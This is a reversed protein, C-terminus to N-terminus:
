RRDQALTTVLSLDPPKLQQRCWQRQEESLRYYLWTLYASQAQRVTIEALTLQSKAIAIQQPSTHGQQLEALKLRAAELAVLDASIDAPRGPAQQQAVQATRIQVELDAILLEAEYESRWVYLDAVKQGKTIYDGPRVLIETDPDHVPSVSIITAPLPTPTPTPTTPQTPNSQVETSYYKM